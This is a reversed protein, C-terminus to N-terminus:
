KIHKSKKVIKIIFKIYFTIYELMKKHYNSKIQIKLQSSNNGM